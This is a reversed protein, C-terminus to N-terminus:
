PNPVSIPIAESTLQCGWSPKDLIDLQCAGGGHAIYFTSLM